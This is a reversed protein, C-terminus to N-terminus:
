IQIIFILLMKEELTWQRLTVFDNAIEDSRLEQRSISTGSKIIM